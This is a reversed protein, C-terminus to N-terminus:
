GEAAKRMIAAIHNENELVEAVNGRTFIRIQAIAQWVLMEIGSVVNGGVAQWKSALTSPWPNYAVDLLTGVPQGIFWDDTTSLPPLTSITLQFKALDSPQVEINATLGNAQAFDVLARAKEADRALVELTADPNLRKVALVANRATAGSGLMLVKSFNAGELAKAMGFVDTNFGAWSDETRLITNIAAAAIADTDDTYVLKYAEDKLPMTLSAGALQSKELFGQLEDVKVQQRSYTWDLGLLEYAAQHINPSKSHEIPSGLVAFQKAM